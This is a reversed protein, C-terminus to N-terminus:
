PKRANEIGGPDPNACILRDLDSRAVWRRGDISQTRLYGTDAWRMATSRAVGLVRAAAAVTLLAAPEAPTVRQAALYDGLADRLADLADLVRVEPTPATM